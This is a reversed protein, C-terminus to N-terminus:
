LGSGTNEANYEKLVNTFNEKFKSNLSYYGVSLIHEGTQADKTLITAVEGNAFASVFAPKLNSNYDSRWLDIQKESFNKPLWYKYKKDLQGIIKDFRDQANENLFNFRKVDYLIVSTLRDLDDFGLLHIPYGGLVKNCNESLLIKSASMTGLIALGTPSFQMATLFATTGYETNNFNCKGGNLDLLRNGFKLDNYGDITNSYEDLYKQEKELALRKEEEAKLREEEALRKEEEVRKREEEALRKEEEIKFKKYEKKLDDFNNIENNAIENFKLVFENSIKYQELKELNVSENIELTIEAIQRDYNDLAINIQSIDREMENKISVIELLKNQNKVNAEILGELKKLKDKKLSNLKALKDKAIKDKKAKEEKKKKKAILEERKAQAVKKNEYSIFFPIAKEKGIKITLAMRDASVKWTTKKGNIFVRLPKGIKGWRWGDRGTEKNDVFKVYQDNDFVFTAKEEDPGRFITIENESIFKELQKKQLSNVVPIPKILELIENYTCNLFGKENELEIIEQGKDNKYIKTNNTKHQELCISSIYQFNYEDSLNYKKFIDYYDNVFIKAKAFNNTLLFSTLIILFFKNM